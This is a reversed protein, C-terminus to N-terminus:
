RILSSKVLCESQVKKLKKDSQRHSRQSQGNLYAMITEMFIRGMEDDVTMRENLAKYGM